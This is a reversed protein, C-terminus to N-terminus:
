DESSRYPSRSRKSRSVVPDAKDVVCRQPAVPGAVGVRRNLRTHVCKRAACIGRVYLRYARSCLSLDIVIRRICPDTKWPQPVLASREDPLGAHDLAKVKIRDPVPHSRCWYDICYSEASSMGLFPPVRTSLSSRSYLVSTESIM